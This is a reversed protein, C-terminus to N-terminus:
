APEAAAKKKFNKIKDNLFNQARYRSVQGSNDKRLHMHTVGKDHLRSKQNKFLTRGQPTYLIYKKNEPMYIYLDFEVPVDEALDNMGVQLMKESFSATLETKTSATPFFAMAIEHGNHAAKRLFEAQELTWPEFDVEQLNVNMSGQSVDVNEGSSQLFKFLKEKVSDFLTQDVVKASSAAILYGNFKNSEVILCIANSVKEVAVIDEEEDKVLVSQKLAKTASRVFITEKSTDEFVNRYEKAKKPKKRSNEIGSGAVPGKAFASNTDQDEQYDGLSNGAGAPGEQKVQFDAPKAGEQTLASSEAAAGSKQITGFGKKPDDGKLISLSGLDESDSTQLLSQLAQQAAKFTLHSDDSAAAQDKGFVRKDDNLSPAKGDPRIKDSVLGSRKQLDRQIRFVMREITTGSIPPYLIYELNMDKLQNLVSPQQSETYGIVQIPFAQMLVKPLIKIKKNPFDCPLLVFDPKKQSINLLLDRLLSSSWVSWNRHTLYQEAPLLNRPKVKLIFLKIPNETTSVVVEKGDKMEKNADALPNSFTKAKPNPESM